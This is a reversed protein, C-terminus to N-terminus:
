SLLLKYRRSIRSLSRALWTLSVRFTRAYLKCIRGVPRWLLPGGLGLIQLLLSIGIIQFLLGRVQVLSRLYASISLSKQPARQEFQQGPELMIVVGTFGGDFEEPTLRRRGVAPDVVDVQRPSWREVILFHDFEWHIIAPLAVYRFDNRKLSVTRVRLGYRQASKVIALATLGDRGVGCREQVELISAECGYYNLIMALCAAGCEVASVQRMEPVHRLKRRLRKRRVTGKQAIM